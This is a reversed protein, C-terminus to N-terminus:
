EEKWERIQYCIYNSLMMSGHQYLVCRTQPAMERCITRLAYYILCLFWQSTCVRFHCIKRCIEGYNLIINKTFIINHVCLRLCKLTLIVGALPHRLWKVEALVTSFIKFIVFQIPLMKLCVLDSTNRIVATLLKKGWRFSERCLGHGVPWQSFLSPDVQFSLALLRPLEPWTQFIRTSIHLPQSLIQHEHLFM